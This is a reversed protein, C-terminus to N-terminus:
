REAELGASSLRTELKLLKSTESFNESSQTNGM